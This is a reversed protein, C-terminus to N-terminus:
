SSGGVVLSNNASVDSVDPHGKKMQVFAEAIGEVRRCADGIATLLDDPEFPGDGDILESEVLSLEFVTPREDKARKMMTHMQELFEDRDDSSCREVVRGYFYAIQREDAGMAAERCERTLPGREVGTLFGRQEERTGGIVQEMRRLLHGVPPLSGTEDILRNDNRVVECADVMASEATPAPEPVVVEARPRRSAFDIIKGSEDEGGAQEAHEADDTAVTQTKEDQVTADQGRDDNSTAEQSLLSWRFFFHGSKMRV